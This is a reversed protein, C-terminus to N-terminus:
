DADEVESIEKRPLRERLDDRGEEVIALTKQLKNEISALVEDAYKNAGGKIEYAIKHAEAIIEESQFKAERVIESEQAMKIIKDKADEKMKEAEVKAEDILRERERAIWKAQRMEEPLESRIKDIYDLLQEKETIIKNSLPVKKSAEIEQELEDLVELIDVDIEEEIIM